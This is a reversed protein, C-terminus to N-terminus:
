RTIYKIVAALLFPLWLLVDLLFVIFDRKSYNWLAKGRLHPETTFHVVLGVGVYLFFILWLDNTSM